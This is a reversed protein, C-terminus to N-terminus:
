VIFHAIICLAVIWNDRVTAQIFSLLVSTRVVGHPIILMSPQTDNHSTVPNCFDLHVRKKTKTFKCYKSQFCSISIIPNAFLDWRANGEFRRRTSFVVRTMCKTRVERTRTVPYALWRCDTSQAIRVGDSCLIILEFPNRISEIWLRHKYVYHLHAILSTQKM